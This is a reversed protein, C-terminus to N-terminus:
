CSRDILLLHIPFYKERKLRRLINIGSMNQNNKKYQEMQLYQSSYYFSTSPVPQGDAKQKTFLYM